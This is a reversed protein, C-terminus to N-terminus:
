GRNDAAADGEPGQRGRGLLRRDLDAEEPVHVLRDVVGALREVSVSAAPCKENLAAVDVVLPEARVRGPRRSAIRIRSPMQRVEPRLDTKEPESISFRLLRSAAPAVAAHPVVPLQTRDLPPLHRGRQAIRPEVQDPEAMVVRQHRQEVVRSM